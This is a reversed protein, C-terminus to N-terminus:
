ADDEIGEGHEALVYLFEVSCTLADDILVFFLLLWAADEIAVGFDLLCIDDLGGKVAVDLDPLIDELAFQLALGM